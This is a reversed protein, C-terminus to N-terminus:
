SADGNMRGRGWFGPIAGLGVSLGRIGVAGKPTTRRSQPSEGPSREDFGFIAALGVGEGVSDWQPSRPVMGKCQAM